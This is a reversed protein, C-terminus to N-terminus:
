SSAKNFTIEASISKFPNNKNKKKSGIINIKKIEGFQGFWENIKLIKQNVNLPLGVVFCMNRQILIINGTITGALRPEVAEIKPFLREGILRKKEAPKAHQLMDSTLSSISQPSLSTNIKDKLARQDSCLLLIESLKYLEAHVSIMVNVGEMAEKASREEDYHVYGCQLSKKTEKDEM